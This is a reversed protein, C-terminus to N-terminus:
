SPRDESQGGWVAPRRAEETRRVRDGAFMAVVAGGLAVGVLALLTMEGGTGIGAIFSGSDPTTAAAGAAQLLMSTGLMVM